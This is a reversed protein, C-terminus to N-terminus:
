ELGRLPAPEDYTAKCTYGRSERDKPDLLYLVGNATDRGLLFLVTPSHRGGRISMHSRILIDELGDGTFDALALIKLGVYDYPTTYSASTEDIPKISEFEDFTSWPIRHKDALLMRCNYDSSVPLAIIVPLFDPSRQDLRFSRVFSRAAPQAKKLLEIANCEAKFYLYREYNNRGSPSYVEATLEDISVCSDMEVDERTRDRPHYAPVVRDEGFYLALREDIQNLSELELKESWWVPYTDQAAAPLVSWGAAVLTAFFALACWRNMQTTNRLNMMFCVIRPSQPAM